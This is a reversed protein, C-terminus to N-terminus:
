KLLIMKRTQTFSGTQLRYFYVGSPVEMGRESSGDWHVKYLGPSAFADVLSKVLQGRIDFVKLSIRGAEGEPVNYQISTSPNFPNPSNQALSFAKPLAVTGGSQNVETTSILNEINLMQGSGLSVVINELRIMSLPNSTEGDIRLRVRALLPEAISLRHSDGRETAGVGWVGSTERALFLAQESWFGGKEVQTIEAGDLATLTFAIGLFEDARGPDIALQLTYNGDGSSNGGLELVLGLLEPTATEWANAPAASALLSGTSKNWNLAVPLVDAQDIFGNGDCDAYTADNVGWPLAPQLHWNRSANGRVAGSSKWYLGIPLIDAQDVFGNNNTDGPWVLLGQITLALSSDAVSLEGGGSDLSVLDSLNFNIVTGLPTGPATTFKARAVTGSGTVGGAGNKRSVAIAAQNSDMSTYVVLDGGLFPGAVVSDNSVLSLYQNNNFNLVFSTGFLDTVNNVVIDVWFDTAPPFITDTAVLEIVPLPGPLVGTGSLTVGLSPEDADNSAITVTGSQPGAATPAFTVTVLQSDGAAINASAPSVTFVPNDSTISSANLTATGFNLISFTGNSTSGTTVTGLSLSTATLAIEPAPPLTGSGSAAVALSPEDSDDSVITITASQAGAAVPAFIVSVLQSDGPALAASAPSLTFVANDSTIGSVTLTATGDNKISFSANGSSGITATGFSLTTASLTIEPEASAVGTGSVAVTVLGEDLDGSSISIVGSQAGAALPAFTVTVLQSDGPAISATNPSVTFVANDSAISPVILAIGGDNRISFIGNGSSGVSVSGLSLTTDSLTIEPTAPNTGEGSLNVTLAPEDSDDSSVTVTAAQVGTASPTFTVTVLQSDGAAVSASVPSVSFEANDSAIASVTLLANGDNKIFFTDSSSSDVFVSGFALTTESLTIEPTTVIQQLFSVGGGDTGFWQGGLIDTGISRVRDNVLGSNSTTFNTWTTGDFKSVGGSWTGFWLNGQSDVAASWVDNDALGNSTSASTYTTWNTGDFMSVGGQAALWVNGQNDTVMARVYSGAIGSGGNWKTWTTGDFRSVGAVVTGFWMNGTSDATISSVRDDALGNSTSTKTYTTWTTGDYKTVGSYYWGYSFWMNDQTDKVISYVRNDALGTTTDYGSWTTGDFVRVGKGWAGFLLNGQPDTAIANVRNDAIASNATTYNTFGVGDFMSAGGGATGFWANGQPGETVVRVLDSALGNSTSYSNWSDAAALSLPIALTLIITLLRTM